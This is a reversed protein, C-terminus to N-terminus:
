TRRCWCGSRMTAELTLREETAVHSVAIYWFIREPDNLLVESRNYAAQTFDPPAPVSFYGFPDVFPDPAPPDEGHRHPQNLPM